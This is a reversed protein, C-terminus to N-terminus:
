EDNDFSGAPVPRAQITKVPRDQIEFYSFCPVKGIRSEKLDCIDPTDYRQLFLFKEEEKDYYYNSFTIHLLQLQPFGVTANLQIEPIWEEGKNILNSPLSYWREIEIFNEIGHLWKIPFPGIDIM